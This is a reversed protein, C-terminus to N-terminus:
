PNFELIRAVAAGIEQPTKGAKLMEQAVKDAQEQPTLRKHHRSNIRGQKSPQNIQSSEIAELADLGDNRIKLLNEQEASENPFQDALSNTVLIGKRQPLMESLNIM